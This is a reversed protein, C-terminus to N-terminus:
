DNHMHMYTIELIESELWPQSYTIPKLLDVYAEESEKITKIETFREQTNPLSADMEEASSVSQHALREGFLFCVKWPLVCIGFASITLLLDTSVAWLWNLKKYYYLVCITTIFLCQYCKGLGKWKSWFHVTKLVQTLWDLYINITEFNPELNSGIRIQVWSNAKNCPEISTIILIM